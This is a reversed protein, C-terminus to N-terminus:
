ASARRFWDHGGGLTSVPVAYEAAVRVAHQVDDASLCRVSVAAKVEAAGNWLGEQLSKGAESDTWIEGTIHKRLDHILKQSM